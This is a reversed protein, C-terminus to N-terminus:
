NLFVRRRQTYDELSQRRFEREADTTSSALLKTYKEICHDLWLLLATYHIM